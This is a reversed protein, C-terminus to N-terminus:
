RLQENLLRALRTGALVIQQAAVQRAREHYAVDIAYPGPGDGIPGSYVVKQALLVGEKVWVRPDDIQARQADAPPLKRVNSLALPILDTHGQWAAEGLEQDGPLDDWFAHLERPCFGRHQRDGQGHLHPPCLLQVRNGGADGDPQDHTFRSVDHLPQHVDGVLHLLWTLAYSKHDADAAPDALVARFATIQTLVNPARPEELKTGDSSIPINIYHWYRHRLHDAYGKDAGADPADQRDGEDTYGPASKIDDAWVGALMFARLRTSEGRAEGKEGTWELYSPNLTLLHDVQARAAPTLQSYAVADVMLHGMKGWGFASPAVILALLFALYRMCPNERGAVTGASGPITGPKRPLASVAADAVRDRTPALADQRADTGWVKTSPM